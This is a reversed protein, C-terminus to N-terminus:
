KTAPANELTKFMGVNRISVRGQGKWDEIPLFGGFRERRQQFYMTVVGVVEGNENCVPSGSQGPIASPLYANVEGFSKDPRPSLVLSYFRGGNPFGGTVRDLEEGGLSGVQFIHGSYSGKAILKAWDAGGSFRRAAVIAKFAAESSTGTQLRVVATSGIGGTVHGNTWVEFRDAEAAVVFGSGTGTDTEIRAIGGQSTNVQGRSTGNCCCVLIWIVFLHVVCPWLKFM